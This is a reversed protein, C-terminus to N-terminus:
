AMTHLSMSATQSLIIPIRPQMLIVRLCANRPLRQFAKVFISAMALHYQITNM